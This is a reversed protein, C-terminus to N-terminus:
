QKASLAKIIEPIIVMEIHKNIRDAMDVNIEATARGDSTCHGGHQFVEAADRLMYFQKYLDKIRWWQKSNFQPFDLFFGLDEWTAAGIDMVTATGPNNGKHWPSVFNGLSHGRVDVVDLFCGDFHTHMNKTTVYGGGWYWGCAWEFGELYVNAASNHVDYDKLKGLYAKFPFHRTTPTYSTTKM